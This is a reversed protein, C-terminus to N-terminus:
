VPPRPSPSSPCLGPEPQRRSSPLPLWVSSPGCGPVRPLWWPADRILCHHLAKATGAPAGRTVGGCWWLQSGGLNPAVIDPSAMWIAPSLCPPLLPLRLFATPSLRRHRRGMRRSLSTGVEPTCLRWTVLLCKDPSIAGSKPCQPWQSLIESVPCRVCCAEAEECDLLSSTWPWPTPLSPKRHSGRRQKCTPSGERWTKM